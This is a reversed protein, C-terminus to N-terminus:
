WARAEPGHAPPTGGDPRQRTLLFLPVHVLTWGALALAAAAGFQLWYRSVVALASPASVNIDTTTWEAWGVGRWTGVIAGAFVVAPRRAWLHCCAGLSLLLASGLLYGQRVNDVPVHVFWSVALAVLGIVAGSALTMRMAGDNM